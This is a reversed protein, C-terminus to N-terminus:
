LPVLDRVRGQWGSNKKAFRRYQRIADAYEPPIDFEAPQESIVYRLRDAKALGRITKVINFDFTPLDLAYQRDLLLAHAAAYTGDPCEESAIISDGVLRVPFRTNLPHPKYVSFVVHTADKQRDLRHYHRVPAITHGCEFLYRDHLLNRAFYPLCHVGRGDDNFTLVSDFKLRLGSLVRDAHDRQEPQDYALVLERIGARHLQALCWHLIPKGDLDIFSKSVPVTISASRLRQAQGGIAVLAQRTKM